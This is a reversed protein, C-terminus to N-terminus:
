AAFIYEHDSLYEEENLCETNVSNIIENCSEDSNTIVILEHISSPIVKYGEKFIENMKDKIFLGAIAGYMMNKNTVVYMGEVEFPIMDAMNNIVVDDKVNEIADNVVEKLEKDWREILKDTVRISGDIGMFSVDIYAIILLDDYGYDAASIGFTNKKANVLRARLHKKVEEYDEIWDFEVENRIQNNTIIEKIKEVAKDIGLDIYDEAYVTPSINTENKVVIGHKVVGNNKIVVNIKAGDIRSAVENAFEVVTM